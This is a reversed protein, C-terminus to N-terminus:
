ADGATIQMTIGETRIVRAMAGAAIPVTGENRANWTTGRYEVRCSEGPGLQAPVRVRDGVIDPAMDPVGPRLQQYVRRRFFVMSVLALIAFLVVQGWLPLEPVGLAVLGTVIASVGIFVLFFEAEIVFLEAGLLIAGVVMWAWWPM